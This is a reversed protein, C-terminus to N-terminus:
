IRSIIWQQFKYSIVGYVLLLPARLLLAFLALPALGLFFVLRLRKKLTWEEKATFLLICNVLLLTYGLISWLILGLFMESGTFRGGIASKLLSPLSLLYPACFPSLVIFATLSGYAEFRVFKNFKYVQTGNNM